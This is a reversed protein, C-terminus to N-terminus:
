GAGGGAGASPDAVIVRHPAAAVDDSGRRGVTGAVQVDGAVIERPFLIAPVM